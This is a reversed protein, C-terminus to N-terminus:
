IKSISSMKKHDLVSRIQESRKYKQKQLMKDKERSISFKFPHLNRNIIGDITALDPDSAM